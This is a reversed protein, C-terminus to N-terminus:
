ALVDVIEGLAPGPPQHASSDTSVEDEQAPGGLAQVASSASTDHQATFDRGEGAPSQGSSGIDLHLVSVDLSTLMQRLESRNQTLAQAGAPTDASVRARLGESTQLLRISIHGLEEPQLEIRARAYGQRAAIEITTKIADITDQMPAGFVSSPVDPPSTEPALSTGLATGLTPAEAQTTSPAVGGTTGSAAGPRDVTPDTLPLSNTDTSNVTPDNARGRGGLFPTSAPSSTVALSASPDAGEQAARTM